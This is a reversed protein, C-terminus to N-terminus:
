QKPKVIIGKEKAQKLLEDDSLNKLSSKGINVIPIKPVYGKLSSKERAYNELRTTEDVISQNKQVMFEILQKRAQPSNELQPVLSQIFKRDENSFGAGLRGGLTALIVDGATKQYNESASLRDIDKGSVLGLTQLLNTAGLRGTAFTGSILDQQNLQNLRNLSNLSSIANDRTEIAQAVKKADLEALQKTFATEGVSSATASVKATTRDVGGVYPVRIQKGDAGKQYTFQTDNNVDLYVPARTGEAVGVEKINEKTDKTTLRTLQDYFEQNFEPTGREGKRLAFSTAIQIENPTAEQKEAKQLQLREVELDQYEPSDKALSRQAVSIQRLREAVQLPPAIAAPKESRELQIKEAQLVKYEQSEPDLTAQLRTIESIRNAVQIQTAPTFPKEPRQLQDKEAQLIKYDQSAPDLNAQIRTIEAIRNAVQLPAAINTAKDGILVKLQNELLRIARDREPSPPLLKYQDLADQIQPIMQAKQIDAPVALQREKNAQAVQVAAQRGADAVAIAFKQDGSQAAIQAVKMYSDPNSPDLQGALAQRQSIIKLQPDEGGLAGGIARGLQQAGYAIGFQGQEKPSLRAMQLAQAEMDAQRQREYQQPSAFLGLIDSAM